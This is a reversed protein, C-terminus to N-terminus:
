DQVVQGRYIKVSSKSKSAAQITPAVSKVVKQGRYICTITQATDSVDETHEASQTADLTSPSTDPHEARPIDTPPALPEPTSVPENLYDQFGLQELLLASEEPLLTEPVPFILDPSYSFRADQLYSLAMLASLNYEGNYAAGILRGKHLVIQGSRNQDTAIFLTGTNGTECNYFLTKWLEYLPSDRRVGVKMDM